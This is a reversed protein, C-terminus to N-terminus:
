SFLSDITTTSIGKINASSFPLDKPLTKGDGIKMQPPKNVDDFTYIILEGDLPVWDVVADWNSQTDIKNQIRTNLTQPM